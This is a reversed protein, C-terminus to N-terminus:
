RLLRLWVPTGGAALQAALRRASSATLGGTIDASDSDRIGDPYQRFDISPVSVLQGDVAIAFHQDFTEGATSLQQGRRAVAATVQQFAREGAPTFRFSVDPEGSTDRGPRPDTIQSPFIAVDDHLVFFQASPDSPGAPQGATASAAQLVVIGQPVTLLEAQTRSVGSPLEADAGAVSDAPGSLLCHAGPVVHTGDTLAAQACAASGPAGFLYYEPGKRSLRISAPAAPQRAALRVASYLSMSGSLATGPGDAVGQSIKVAARNQTRLQSAVTRGSPTVVNAEWDYLMLGGSTTVQTIVRAVNVPPSAPFTIVLRDPGSRRVTVLGGLQRLRARVVTVTRAMVSRTVVPTQPTPQAQFVLRTQPGSSPARGGGVGTRVIAAAVALVVLASVIPVAVLAIRSRRPPRVPGALVRQLIRQAGPDRDLPVPRDDPVPNARTLLQVVSEEPTM